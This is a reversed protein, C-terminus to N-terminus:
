TPWTQEMFPSACALGLKGSQPSCYHGMVPHAINTSIERDHYRLLVESPRPVPGFGVLRELVENVAAAGVMTTFSVVAPETQGLAPAYGENELRRREHPTLLEAAARRLDIRGRCVLCAAGPSLVTVRGDIGILRDEDCSLLVGCDIVPTLIYTAMRSLVLRGANDDTCGFVLDCGILRRATAELTVMSEIADCLLDPAIRVLHRRLVEVKPAGVDEATSGYVRTLNSESLHDPDILTLRKVGLRVLQEAVVSGTGGCGVVGISLDGLTRQVASGFARVNRDYAATLREGAYGFMRTLRFRDGVQWMRDVPGADCDEHAFHGSFVLGESCYSFILAGYYPTAARLRFLPALEDDVRLDHTSPRPWADRGPHTHVWLCSTGMSEAEGLFPVYGDSRITLGNWERRLYSSDPVWRMQRALLRVTKNPGEIVSVQMVGASEDPLQAINTLEEAM